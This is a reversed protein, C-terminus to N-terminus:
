SIFLVSHVHLSFDSKGFVHLKIDQGFISTNGPGEIYRVLRFYRWNANISYFAEKIRPESLYLDIM